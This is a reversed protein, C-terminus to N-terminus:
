PLISPQQFAEAARRMQEMLSELEGSPAQQAQQHAEWADLGGEFVTLRQDEIVALRTALRKTLWRDHTVMLLTGEWCQLLQEMAAVTELDMHNTPEDLILLNCDSALLKAFAAKAREGGSLSSIPQGIQAALGLNALICRLQSEPLPSDEKLTDLLKASLPLGEQGQSFYGIRAEQPFTGQELLAKLLTTKGCGNKGMLVTRSGVPLTLSAEKLLIREGFGLTLAELRAAYKGRLPHASGLSMKVTHPQSPREKVELLEAKKLLTAARRAVTGQPITRTGKHLRAESNGMRKPAKRMSHAQQSLRQAEQELRSRQAQYQTYEFWAFDRERQRQKEWQSYNGPFVRMQGEELAWITSCVADLLGRDHSVLIVAGSYAELTQYVWRIGEVDLNNTPEDALLLPANQALVEKLAAKAREGGSLTEKPSPPVAQKLYGVSAERRLTGHELPIAGALLNLLTTKGAGNPGVLGIRDGPFVELRPIQFLTREGLEVLLDTGQLIWM